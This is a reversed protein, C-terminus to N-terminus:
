VRATPVKIPRTKPTEAPIELPAADARDIAEQREAPTMRRLNKTTTQVYGGHAAALRAGKIAAKRAKPSDANAAASLFALVTDRRDGAGRVTAAAIAHPSGVDNATQKAGDAEGASAYKTAWVGIKKITEGAAAGKCSLGMAAQILLASEDRIVTGPQYGVRVSTPTETRSFRPQGDEGWSGFLPVAVPSAGRMADAVARRAVSSLPGTIVKGRKCKPLIRAWCEARYGRASGSDTLYVGALKDLTLTARDKCLAADQEIGVDLAIARLTNRGSQEAKDAADAAAALRAATKALTIRDPRAIARRTIRRTPTAAATTTNTDTTM